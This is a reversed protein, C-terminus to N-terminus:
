SSGRTLTEFLRITLATSSSTVMTVYCTGELLLRYRPIRQIPYLMYSSLPLGKCLASNQNYLSKLMLSKNTVEILQVLDAFAKYRQTAESFAIQADGIRSTYMSYLQLSLSLHPHLSIIFFKVKFFPARQVFIDAIVPKSDRCINIVCNDIM